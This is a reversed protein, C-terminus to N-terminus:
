FTKSVSLGATRPRIYTFGNPFYPSGLGGGLVGRKDAANNVFFNIVWSEYRAGARLDAQAYGALNQRQPSQTFVGERDGVYSVEGGVFGKVRSALPFEWDFSLNGSVRSAYPLRDGAAGVATGPGGPPLPATLKADNWAVWAAITLGSSPRTEVSLEVGQSKARGANTFYFNGNAPLVLQLQIDRWDIYYLSSDLSIKNDLFDGKFGIEYNATKDPKFTPPLGFVTSTTNPGGPRYGSALRTYVMLDPSVKFRPTVLYTFSSDKTDLEPQIIPSPLGTFVSDYAGTLTEMYTQKNQSERGGMQIDFQDTFRLTLDTFAAYETYTSPFADYLWQGVVDGTIPNTALWTSSFQNSEHTYFAGFLWQLNNGIPASLRIEQTFKNTKNNLLAPTGTVGFETETFQGILPTLDIKNDQTNISYGTLSTLDLGGIKATLTASYAQVKKDQGGGGLVTNQQLDGLAADVISSGDTKSHQLLASLKLSFAESPKWLAALRGGEADTRNVGRQGTLVNDIYGPDERTFGSARVALTDSLPANISGRFNYGLEAGNHVGSLGGEVRGSVSDTSPDITVFKLLGGISSAGYLTGQPGRLVEVRALDSPDIDPAGFGGGESTSSGYPVDDITIGVTPNTFGGTTIGRISLASGAGESDDSTLSLGPIRMYYDQLRLQNSEVLTDASIATVPVPVDLLNETKKQATVVVEELQDAKKQSAQDTKDTKTEATASSASAGQDVQALRFRDWFSRASDSTDATPKAKGTQNEITAKAPTSQADSSPAVAAIPVVTVTNADLYRFTLGTGDLLQKLAEDSTFEGVLGQTHLANIEESVYIIQFNRDKALTQLAAGLGEAPIDTHKKISAQSEDAGALGVLTLCAVAIAVSLRM